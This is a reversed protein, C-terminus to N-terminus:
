AKDSLGERARRLHPHLTLAAHFAFRAEDAAGGALLLEAFHLMAAFHRPELELTRRIDHLCEENDRTALDLARAAARHPHDMWVNWILDETAGAEAGSCRALRRFLEDLFALARAPRRARRAAILALIDVQNTLRDM